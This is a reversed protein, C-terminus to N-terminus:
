RAPKAPMKKKVIIIMITALALAISGTMIFTNTGSGGTFPLQLQEWNPLFRIVDNFGPQIYVFAPISINGIAQTHLTINLPDSADQWIRWQGMPTQFGVPARYELLQYTFGPTMNFAVAEASPGSQSINVLMTVEHWPALPNGSSDFSVLGTSDTPLNTAATRFVRFRAGALLNDPANADSSANTKYFEFRIGGLSFNIDYNNLPHIIVPAPTTPQSTGNFLLNPLHGTTLANSPPIHLQNAENSHFTIPAFFNLNRFAATAMTYDPYLQTIPSAYQYRASFIGGGMEGARNHTIEINTTGQDVTMTGASAVWIGGGDYEAENGTIIKANSGRMILVADDQVSIGGGYSAKNAHTNPAGEALGPLIGGVTGGYMYLSADALLMIGGGTTIATNGYINGGHITGTAGASLRIGGGEDDIADNFRIISGPHIYLNTATGNAIGGGLRADNDHITGGYMTMNAYRLLRVGGGVGNLWDGADNYRGIARNNYIYGGHMEFTGISGASGDMYIGGGSRAWNDHIRGNLMIFIGDNSVNIGAGMGRTNNNRIIGGDMEFHGGTAVHVGGGRNTNFPLSDPTSQIRSVGNANYYILGGSMNFNANTVYVGGGGTAVQSTDTTVNNHIAGSMLNFTSGDGVFVGGGNNAAQNSDIRGTGIITTGGSAPTYNQMNFIAGGGLWVGGGNVAVNGQTSDTTHGIIGGHMTLTGLTSIGGGNVQAINDRITGGHITVTPGANTSIGGGSARQAHNNFIEGGRMTFSANGTARIGGGGNAVTNTFATNNRIEGHYMVATGGSLLVGGGSGVAHNTCIVGGLNGSRMELRANNDILVGGANPGHNRYVSGAYMHFRSTSGAGTIAVGGGMNTARNQVIQGPPTGSNDQSMRFTGGNYVRVGGGTVAVNAHPHSSSSAPTGNPCLGGIIGGYMNFTGANVIVGGGHDRATNRYIRGGYMNLTASSGMARIGGGLVAENNRIIGGNINVTSNALWIGGGYGRTINTSVHNDEIYGGNMTFSLAGGRRLVRVGAGHPGVNESIVGNNLTFLANDVRVGGGGDGAVLTVSPGAVTNQTILGGDMTFVANETVFVGAGGTGDGTMGGEGTIPDPAIRDVLTSTNERITGNTLTFSANNGVWVGAGNGTDAHNVVFYTDNHTILGSGNMTFAANDNVWVGGGGNFSTNDRITGATMIFTTNPATVAVGGGGGVADVGLSSTFILSATNGEIIGGLGGGAPAHMNFTAGNGLWVGGGYRARNGYAPNNHGITGGNFNFVANSGDIRVGGGNLIPASNTPSQERNNYIHAATMTVIGNNQNIGGGNTAFNQHINNTGSEMHFNGHAIHVGGGYPASNQTINRTGANRMNFNNGANASSFVGGGAVSAVNYSITTTGTTNSMNFTAAAGIRVGGGEAGTNRNAFSGGVVGGTMNFVSGAGTVHVGGGGTPAITRNGTINGASMNFVAGAAIVIGSGNTAAGATTGTSNHNRVHASATTMHLTGSQMQIGAGGNIDGITNHEIIIDGTGELTITTHNNGRIGGANTYAHNGRITKAATGRITFINQVTPSQGASVTVGGGNTIATNGTINGGYMIFTSGGHSENSVVSVGGGSSSNARNGSITGGYMTLNGSSVTIGGGSSGSTNDRITGGRMIMTARCPNSGTHGVRIAGSASVSTNHHITGGNMEMHSYMTVRVAGAIGSWDTNVARNNRIVGNNMIFSSGTGTVTVGGGTGAINDHIVATASNMTFIAGNQVIVGGGWGTTLAEAVVPGVTNNRIVATGTMIFHANPGTVAVGGGGGADRSISTARNSHIVGGSMTFTGGIILVAGGHSASHGSITGGSMTFTGSSHTIRNNTVTVFPTFLSGPDYYYHLPHNESGQGEVSGGEMYLNGGTIFLPGYIAGGEVIRVTHGYPVVFSTFGDGIPFYVISPLIVADDPPLHDYYESIYGFANNESNNEDGAYYPAQGHYIPTEGVHGYSGWHYYYDYAEYGSYGYADYYHPQYSVDGGNEYNIGSEIYTDDQYAHYEDYQYDYSYSQYIEGVSDGDIAFVVIAAVIALVGLLAFIRWYHIGRKKSQRAVGTSSKM